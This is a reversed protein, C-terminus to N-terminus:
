LSKRNINRKKTRHLYNIENIKDKSCKGENTVSFVRTRSDDLARNELSPRSESPTVM